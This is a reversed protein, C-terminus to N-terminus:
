AFLRSSLQLPVRSHSPLVRGNVLLQNADTYYHKITLSLAAVDVQPVDPVNHTIEMQQTQAMPFSVVDAIKFSSGSVGYLLVFSFSEQEDLALLAQPQMSPETVIDVVAVYKHNSSPSAVSKAKAVANALNTQTKKIDRRGIGFANKMRTVTRQLVAANEQCLRKTGKLRASDLNFACGFDAVAAGFEGVLSELVAKNFHIDPDGSVKRAAQQMAALAKRAGVFTMGEATAVSLLSLSLTNWADGSDVDSQVAERARAVSDGLYLMKQEHTVGAEGCRNRLVQSYKCLAAISKPEARLANDLAECAEKFANRRLFCESLEIWADASGQRLKLVMHLDREAEKSALPILLKAKSRLLLLRVKRDTNKEEDPSPMANLISQVGESVRQDFVKVATLEALREELSELTEAPFSASEM